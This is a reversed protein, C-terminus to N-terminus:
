ADPTDDDPRAGRLRNPCTDFHGNSCKTANCYGCRDMEAPLEGIIHKRLFAKFWGM